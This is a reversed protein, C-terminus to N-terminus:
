RPCEADEQERHSPPTPSGSSLLLTQPQDRGRQEARTTRRSARGPPPVRVGKARPRSTPLPVGPPASNATFRGRLIVVYERYAPDGTLLGALPAAARGTTLAWRASVPAADGSDVAQRVAAMVVWGPPADAPTSVPVHDVGLLMGGIAVAAGLGAVMGVGPLRMARAGEAPGEHVVARSSEWAPQSSRGRLHVALGLDTGDSRVLFIGSTGDPTQGAFAVWRGDPSWTPSQGGVPDPSLRTLGTGDPHISYIANGTPTWWAFAVSSGDPSWAPDSAAGPLQAVLRMASTRVDLVWLQYGSSGDSASVVLERGDPSWSPCFAGNRITTLQRTDSGDSNMLFVQTLGAAEATFAIESGDPSWAPERASDGTSTLERVGSGDADMVYLESSTGHRGSAFM